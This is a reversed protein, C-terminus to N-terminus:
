ISMIYCWRKRITSILQYKYKTCDSQKFMNLELRLQLYKDLIEKGEETMVLQAAGKTMTKHESM